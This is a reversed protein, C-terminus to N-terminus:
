FNDSYVLLFIEKSIFCVFVSIVAFYSSIYLAPRFAFSFPLQLHRIFFFTDVAFTGQLVAQFSWSSKAEDFLPQIFYNIKSGLVLLKLSVQSESPIKILRLKGIGIKDETSITICMYRLITWTPYPSSSLIDLFLGPWVKSLRLLLNIFSFFNFSIVSIYILCLNYKKNKTRIICCGWAFTCLLLFAFVIVEDTTM